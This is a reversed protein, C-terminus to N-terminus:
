AEGTISMNEVWVHPSIGQHTVIQEDEIKVISSLVKLIDGAVTAAEISTKKGDNVIWGDFPLSFSGQSAKVGSHIASLEDILIYEKITNKISLSEDKDMESESKSVVLWDPSVSVKAGLGAHGTPKVGFKRATAESHLLQTLIGNTVLQINQTPTGEGDFSFAGVNKPHLGEDSINLNPVSIQNGLSDENMLSLGDIISRANFMSSFANILQLFAEPTFCVLYKDTEISKYDLHSILKDSTESICSDIDLEELNSNIRIGGASRPKKNEEEAKAYLYISSQSLKMHRNAGESNIYIREMYSENLGNYPVSDISKHTNILQKEAKKLISLLQDITHSNSIEPNIEELEAKALSSFEPSEKENGFLSAEIAGKMAKKIGESTLDSTSTIGVQNNKNWVRLTMSNRQSGKLQKANGQQVQVSIDRSSSAGMDWKNISSEESYKELLNNLIIPDLASTKPNTISKNM